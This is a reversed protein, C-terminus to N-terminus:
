LLTTNRKHDRNEEEHKKYVVMDFANGFYPDKSAIYMCIMDAMLPGMVGNATNSRAWLAFGYVEPYKDAYCNILDVMDPYFFLREGGDEPARTKTDLVQLIESLKIYM